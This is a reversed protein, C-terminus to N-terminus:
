SKKILYGTSWGLPIWLIGPYATIYMMPFHLCSANLFNTYPDWGGDKTSCGYNEFSKMSPWCWERALCNASCPDLFLVEMPVRIYSQFIRITGWLGSVKGCHKSCSVLGEKGSEISIFDNKINKSLSIPISVVRWYQFLTDNPRCVHFLRKSYRKQDVKILSIIIWSLSFINTWITWIRYVTHM